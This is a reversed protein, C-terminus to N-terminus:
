EPKKVPEIRKGDKDLLRVRIECISSPDVQSRARLTVIDTDRPAETPATYKGDSTIEGSRTGLRAWFAGANKGQATEGKDKVVLVLRLSSGLRAEYDVRDKNDDGEALRKLEPGDKGEADLSLAKEVTLKIDMGWLRNIEAKVIETIDHEKEFYIVPSILLQQQLVRFDEQAEAVKEPNQVINLVQNYGRNRALDAVLSRLRSFSAIAQTRLEAQAASDVRLRESNYERQADLLKKMADWHQQQQPEWRKREAELANVRPEFRVDIERLQEEAEAAVRFQERKLQPEDKFLSLFDVYAVKAPNPAATPQADAKLNLGAAFAGALLAICFATVGLAAIMRNQM